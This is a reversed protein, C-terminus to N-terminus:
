KSSWRASKRYRRVARRPATSRARSRCPSSHVAHGTAKRPWDPPIQSDAECRADPAQSHGSSRALFIHNRQDVLVLPALVPGFSGSAYPTKVLKRVKRTKM